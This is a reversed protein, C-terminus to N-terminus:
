VIQCCLFIWRPLMLSMSYHATVVYSCHSQLKDKISDFFKIIQNQVNDKNKALDDFYSFCFYQTIANLSNKHVFCRFEQVDNFPALAVCVGEPHEAVEDLWERLILKCDFLHPPFQLVKNLDECIRTSSILLKEHDIFLSILM